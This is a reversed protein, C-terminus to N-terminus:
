GEAEQRGAHYQRSQKEGSTEYRERYAGAHSGDHSEYRDGSTEGVGHIGVQCEGNGDDHTTGVEAVIEGKNGVRRDHSGLRLAALHTVLEPHVGEDHHGSGDEDEGDVAHHSHSRLSRRM